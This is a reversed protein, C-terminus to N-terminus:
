EIVEDALAYINPPIDIGIAKATALNIVLEYKTPMEVPLDSPKAGKLVGGVYVGTRRDATTDTAGYSMLGGAIVFERLSHITPLGHRTALAAILRRRSTFFAGTGILLGGASSRILMEFAPGFERDNGAKVIV